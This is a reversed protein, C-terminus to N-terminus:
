DYYGVYYGTNRLLRIGRVVIFSLEKETLHTARKGIKLVIRKRKKDRSRVEKTAKYLKIM